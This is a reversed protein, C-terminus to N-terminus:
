VGFKARQSNKKLFFMSTKRSTSLQLDVNADLSNLLLIVMSYLTMSLIASKADSGDPLDFPKELPLKSINGHYSKALKEIKSYVARVENNQTTLVM